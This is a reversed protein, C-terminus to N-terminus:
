EISGGRAASLEPELARDFFAEIEGRVGDGGDFGKWSLRIRGILDYCEDIPVVASQWLNPVHPAQRVVLAEVDPAVTALWPNAAVLDRWGDLPLLSEVSGAPSPYFAFTRSTRGHVVFFALGVPIQLADWNAETLRLPPYPACARPVARLRSTDDARGASAWCETCSCLLRRDEIDVVHAHSESLTTGCSECQTTASHERRNGRAIQVLPTAPVARPVLDHLALVTAVAPDHAFRETVKVANEERAIDMVRALAMGYLAMTERLLEVADRRGDADPHAEFASILAEIRATTAAIDPRDASV